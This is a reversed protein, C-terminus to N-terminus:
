QDDALTITYYKQRKSHTTARITKTYYYDPATNQYWICQRTSRCLREYITSDM